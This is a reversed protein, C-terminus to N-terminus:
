PASAVNLPLRIEPRVTPLPAATATGRLHLVLLCTDPEAVTKLEHRSPYLRTLRERLSAFDLDVGQDPGAEPQSYIVKCTLSNKKVVLDISSWPCEQRADAAAQFASEVFPLLLLPAIVHADVAGSFSLSVDVGPGLRLQELAVYDRLMAVEDALPVADQPSEYLMYRLLASLHLVAAPADASKTETLHRLRDLTGFLFAPQLQAKLLQLEAQLRRQRLQQSLQWQGRWRGLVKVAVAAGATFLLVFYGARVRWLVDPLNYWQSPYTGFLRPAWVFDYTWNLVSVLVSAGVLWGALGLLALRQRKLLRPLLGYLLPYVTLLGAPLQMFLLGWTYLPTGNLLYAPLGMLLNLGLATAWFLGHRVAWYQLWGRRVVLGPGGGM